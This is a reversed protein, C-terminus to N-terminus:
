LDYDKGLVCSFEDNIVMFTSSLHTMLSFSM